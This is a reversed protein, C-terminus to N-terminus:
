PPPWSICVPRQEPSQRSRSFPSKRNTDRRRLCLARNPERGCPSSGSASYVALCIEWQLRLNDNPNTEPTQRKQQVIQNRRNTGLNIKLLGSTSPEKLAIQFGTSQQGHLEHATYLIPRAFFQSTWRMKQPSSSCVQTEERLSGDLM